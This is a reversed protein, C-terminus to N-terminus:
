LDIWGGTRESEFMADLIRMSAIADNVGYPAPSGTLISQAFAEAQEAYQDCPPLTERRASSADLSRGDDIIITTKEDQPANFPILIEARAKTGFVQFTQFPVLQTSAQFMLLRGDGFDCIAGALRDTRFEPDRDILSVVRRPEAGFVFRAGTIPYCGIDLMAGGGNEPKNRIDGPNANFYSFAAQVARVDGLEGSRAMERLRLWQPHHRIMFAEAILVGDPADRLRIADEANLGVPKECLVHKGARAAKLTWEVHLDNPLPNYIADIDPDALMDEYAGYSRAIGLKQAEEAAREASRSAIGLVNSSVSKRMAPIVKETGISATSLIGWNIKRATM